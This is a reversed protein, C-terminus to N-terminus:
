VCAFATHLLGIDNEGQLVPRKRLMPPGAHHAEQLHRPSTASRYCAYVPKKM